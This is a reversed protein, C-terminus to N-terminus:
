KHDAGPHIAETSAEALLYLLRLLRCGKHARVRVGGEQQHGPCGDAAGGPPTLLAAHDPAKCYYDWHQKYIMVNSPTDLAKEM